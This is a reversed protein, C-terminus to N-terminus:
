RHLTRLGGHREVRTRRSRVLWWLVVALLVYGLVHLACALLAALLAASDLYVTLANRAARDPLRRAVRAILPGAFREAAFAGGLGGLLGPWWADHHAALTGAFLLAGAGLALGTLASAFPDGGAFAREESAPRGQTVQVLYAVVLAAAVALLWWTSQLFRFPHVAFSVGLDGARAFAGALLLPLFPRLGCAVALGVGLGIDFFIGHM